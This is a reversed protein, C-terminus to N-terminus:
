LVWRLCLIGKNLVEDQTWVKGGREIIANKAIHLKFENFSMDVMQINEVEVLKEIFDKSIGIFKIECVSGSEQASVKINESSDECAMFEFYPQVVNKLLLANTKISPMDSVQEFKSSGNQKTSLIIESILQSLYVETQVQSNFGDKAMKYYGGIMSNLQSFASTLPRWSNNQSINTQNELIEKQLNIVKLYGELDTATNLYIHSKDKGLQSIQKISEEISEQLKIVQANKTKLLLDSEKKLNLATIIQEKTEELEKKNSALVEISSDFSKKLPKIVKLYAIALIMMICMSIMISLFLTFRSSENVSTTMLIRLSVLSEEFSFLYGELQSKFVAKNEVVGKKSNLVLTAIGNFNAHYKGLDKILSTISDSYNSNQSIVKLSQNLHNLDAELGHLKENV